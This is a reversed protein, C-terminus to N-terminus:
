ENSLSFFIENGGKIIKINLTNKKQYSEKYFFIIKRDSSFFFFNVNFAQEKVELFFGGQRKRRMGNKKLNVVQSYTQMQRKLLM